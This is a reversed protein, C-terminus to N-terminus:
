RRSITVDQRADEYGWSEVSADASIRYLAHGAHGKKVYGRSRIGRDAFSSSHDITLMRGKTRLRSRFWVDAMNLVGEIVDLTVIAWVEDDDRRRAYEDALIDPNKKTEVTYRVSVSPNPETPGDNLVTEGVIAQDTMSFNPGVLGSRPSSPYGHLLLGRGGSLITGRPEIGRKAESTSKSVTRYRERTEFLGRFWLDSMDLTGEMVEFDVVIWSWEEYTPEPLDYKGSMGAQQHVSPAIRVDPSKAPQETETPTSQIPSPTDTPTSQIPSPTDAPSTDGTGDNKSGNGACGALIGLSGGAAVQIFRRRRMASGESQGAREGDFPISNRENMDISVRESPGRNSKRASQRRKVPRVASFDEGSLIIKVISLNFTPVVISSCFCGVSSSFPILGIPIKSIFGYLLFRGDLLLSVM